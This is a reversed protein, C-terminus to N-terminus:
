VSRPVLLVESQAISHKLKAVADTTRDELELRYSRIAHWLCDITQATFMYKKLKIIVGTEYLLRLVRRVHGIHDAPPKSFVVIDSLYVLTLKWRASVFIDDLARQLTAPANKLGFAIPIFRYLM